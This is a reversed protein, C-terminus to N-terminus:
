LLPFELRPSSLHRHISLLCCVVSWLSGHTRVPGAHGHAERRGPSVRKMQDSESTLSIPSLSALDSARPWWSKLRQTGPTLPQVLLISAWLRSARLSLGIVPHGSQVPGDGVVAMGRQGPLAEQPLGINTSSVLGLEGGPLCLFPLTGLAPLADEKEPSPFSYRLLAHRSRRSCGPGATRPRLQGQVWRPPPVRNSHWGVGLIGSPYTQLM